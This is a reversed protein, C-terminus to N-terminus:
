KSPIDNIDDIGEWVRKRKFMALTGDLSGLRFPICNVDGLDGLELCAGIQLFVIHM